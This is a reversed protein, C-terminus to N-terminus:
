MGQASAVESVEEIADLVGGLKTHAKKKARFWVKSSEHADTVIAQAAAMSEELGSTAQIRRVSAIADPALAPHIAGIAVQEHIVHEAAAPVRAALIKKGRSAGWKAFLGTGTTAVLATGVAAGIAIGVDATQGQVALYTAGGAAVASVAISAYAVSKVRSALLQRGQVAYKGLLYGAGFGGLLSLGGIIALGVMPVSEEQGSADHANIPDGSTYSYLNDGSDIVPDPALFAGLGPHYPRDGMVVISSTGPLTERGMAAMWGYTPVPNVGVLSPTALPEGYPGYAGVIGIPSGPAEGTGSGLAPVDIRVLASGDVGPLTLTAKSNPATSISAGGPLAYRIAATGTVEGNDIDLIYAGAYRVTSSGSETVLTKDVVQGDFSQWRTSVLGSGDPAVEDLRALDTGTGWQAALARPGSIKTVRGIGDYDIDATAGPGAILPDTTSVQRGQADYCSVYDVGNRSGGTRQADRGAAYSSACAGAQQTSYRYAFAADADGSYTARQLRGASDYVYGVDISSAATGRVITSRESIRGAPTMTVTDNVRSFRADDTSVTVSDVTGSPSYGMAMTAAGAYDIATVLGSSSDRTLTAAAVGNVTTSLLLASQTGYAYDFRLQPAGAGVPPTMVVRSVNGVIDYTTEVTEGALNTESVVRGLLDVTSMSTRSEGSSGPSAQGHTITTRTVRPDGDVAQDVVVSQALAGDIYVSSASVSGDERYTTCTTQTMSGGSTASARVRGDIDYYTTVATGNQRTITKPQGSVDVRESGCEGPLSVTASDPWYATAQTLGGPTSRSILRGWGADGDAASEYVLDTVLGGPSKVSSVQGLAPNAFSYETRSADTGGPLDDNSTAVTALGYGPRMEDYAIIAPRQGRPAASVSFWGSSPADAVQVTISKPGKPLDDVRCVTSSAPCIVGGIVLSVDAGGSASVEFDWGDRAGAADDSEAPTWVGSAQASFQTGRGNWEGSLGGRSYDSEWFEATVGGAYSDRQYVQARLGALSKDRDNVRRTDYNTSNRTGTSESTSPGTVSTVQGLEDYAYTTRRGVPDVSSSTLGSREDRELSMDLGYPATVRIPQWSIPDLTKVRRLDYGGGQAEVTLTAADSADGDRVWARLGAETVNPFDIRRVLSDGGSQAPAETLTAARGASDYALSHVVGAAASDVTAIRNVLGPRVSVLRGRDDWGLTEGTNGPAKILAIQAAGGADVYGIQTVRGGPHTLACLMGQPASVFGPWNPCAADGAYHMTMTRGVENSLSALRGNDSWVMSASPTGKATVSVAMGDVFRTVKGDLAAFEWESDKIWTLGNAFGPTEGGVQEYVGFPNRVFTLLSGDWGVLRVVSPQDGPTALSGSAAGALHRDVPAATVPAASRRVRAPPGWITTGEVVAGVRVRTIKSGRVIADVDAVAFSRGPRALVEWQGQADRGEVVFGKVLRAETAPYAFDVRVRNASTRTAAPAAPVDVAEVDVPSEELAMWPSSSSVTLRWGEPMGPSAKAGSSWALGLGVGGAPGALTPSTWAWSAQGTAGSVSVSGVSTAPGASAPNSSVNFSGVSAWEGSGRRVDVAYEAATKLRAGVTFWGRQASGEDVVSTDPRPSSLERVRVDIADVTRLAPIYVLPFDGNLVTGRPMVAVGMPLDPWREGDSSAVTAIPGVTEIGAVNGDAQSTVEEALAVPAVSGYLLGAALATVSAGSITRKM